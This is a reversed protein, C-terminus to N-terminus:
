TQGGHCIARLFRELHDASRGVQGFTLGDREGLDPRLQDIGVRTLKASQLFAFNPADGRQPHDTGLPFKPEGVFVLPDEDEFGGGRHAGREGVHEAVHHKVDLRRGVPRVM